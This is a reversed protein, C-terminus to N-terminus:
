GPHRRPAPRRPLRRARRCREAVVRRPIAAARGAHQLAGVAEHQLVVVALDRQRVRDRRTQIVGHDARLVRPQVISFRARTRKRRGVGFRERGRLSSDRVSPMMGASSDDCATASAIRRAGPAFPLIKM